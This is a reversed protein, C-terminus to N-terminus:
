DGWYAAEILPDNMDLVIITREANAQEVTEKIPESERKDSESTVEKSISNDQQATVANDSSGSDNSKVGKHIGIRLLDKLAEREEDTLKSM